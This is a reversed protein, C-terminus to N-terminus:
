LPPIGPRRTAEHHIAEAVRLRLSEPVEDRCKRAIFIRLEAEFDFAELCPLCADLHTQIEQRRGETLEGDLYHYIIHIAEQCDVHEGGPASQHQETV